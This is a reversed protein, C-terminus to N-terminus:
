IGSSGAISRSTGTVRDPPTDMLETLRTSVDTKVKEDRHACFAHWLLWCPRGESRHAVCHIGSAAVNKDTWGSHQHCLILRGEAIHRHFEHQYKRECRTTTGTCIVDLPFKEGAATIIARVTLSDKPNRSFNATVSEATRAAITIEDSSILCWRTEDM